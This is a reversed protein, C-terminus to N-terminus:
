MSTVISAVSAFVAIATAITLRYTGSPLDVAAYGAAAFDTGTSVSVYTAGDKSKKQLKVSGGGFNAVVDIGYRGGRLTFDATNATINSFEKLEVSNYM